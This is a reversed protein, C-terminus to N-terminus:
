DIVNNYECLVLIYACAGHITWFTKKTKATGVCQFQRPERIKHFPGLDAHPHHFPPGWHLPSPIDLNPVSQLKRNFPPGM